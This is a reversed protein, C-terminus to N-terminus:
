YISKGDGLITFNGFQHGAYAKAIPKSDEEIVNGVLLNAGYESELAKSNLGLDNILSYNLKILKPTPIILQNKSQFFYILCNPM